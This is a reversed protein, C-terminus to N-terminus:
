ESGATSRCHNGARTAVREIELNTHTFKYKRLLHKAIFFNIQDNVANESGQSTM